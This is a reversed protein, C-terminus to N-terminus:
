RLPLRGVTIAPSADSPALVPPASADTYVLVFGTAGGGGGGPAAGNGPAVLRAGGAGGDGGGPGSAGGAAGRASSLSGDAGGQGTSGGGGGGGNAFVQGTIAVEHAAIVLVGGSGGGGASAGPAGGGGGVDIRGDISVAGRCSVFMLAGGGGGGAPSAARYGGRLAGLFGPVAGVSGGAGGGGGDGGGTRFGAGGGGIAGAPPTGSVRTGGGPGDLPGDGSGDIAGGITIDGDAIFAFARAGALEVRGAAIAISSQRVVCIEPGDIQPRVGGTCTSAVGGDLTTDASVTLPGATALADCDRALVEYPPQFYACHAHPQDDLQSLCLTTCTAVPEFSVGDAACREVEDLADPRCRAVGPACTNCSGATNCGQECPVEYTGDGAPNCRRVRGAATCELFAGPECV